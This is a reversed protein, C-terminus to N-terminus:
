VEEGLYPSLLGRKTAKTKLRRLSQGDATLKMKYKGLFRPRTFGLKIAGGSGRSLDRALVRTASLYFYKSSKLFIKAIVESYKNLSLSLSGSPASAPPCAPTFLTARSVLSAEGKWTGRTM